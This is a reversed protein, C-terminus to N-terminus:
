RPLYSKNGNSNIYYQGGRPGTYITSSSPTSPFYSSSTSPTSFYTDAPKTGYSGTYPNVNGITSFNDNKTYNPSTRYHPEVYTNNKTSYGSVWIDSQAFTQSAMFMFASFFFLKKM